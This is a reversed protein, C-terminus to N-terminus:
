KPKIEYSGKFFLSEPVWKIQISNLSCDIRWILATTQSSNLSQGRPYTLSARLQFFLIIHSILPPNPTQFIRDTPRDTPTTKATVCRWDFHINYSTPRSVRGLSGARKRARMPVVSILLSIKGSLLIVQDPRQMLNVLSMLPLYEHQRLVKELVAFVYHQKSLHMLFPQWSASCQHSELLIFLYTGCRRYRGQSSSTYYYALQSKEIRRRSFHLWFSFRQLGFFFRGNQPLCFM